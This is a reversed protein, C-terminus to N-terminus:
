DEYSHRIMGPDWLKVKHTDHDYEGALLIRALRATTLAEQETQGAKHYQSVIAEWLDETPEEFWKTIKQGKNKGRTIQGEKPVLKVPKEIIKEARTMGIGPCGEFGDVRDGALAQKLHFQEAEKPGTEVVVPNGKGDLDGITHLRCPIGRFDKDRGVIIKSGPFRTDDTAVIGLVDDAELRSWHEAGHIERLYAKLKDLLLPKVLEKRNGKYTRAVDFRWNEKPDSLFIKIHDGGLKQKLWWLKNEVVAEGERTYAFPRVFGFEDELPHEVAAAAIFAIVDGDVMLTTEPNSM